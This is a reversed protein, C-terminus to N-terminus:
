EFLEKSTLLRFLELVELSARHSEEDTVGRDEAYCELLDDLNCLAYTFVRALLKLQAPSLAPGPAPDRALIGDAM